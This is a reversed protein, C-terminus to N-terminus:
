KKSFTHYSENATNCDLESFMAKMGKVTSFFCGEKEDNPRIEMKYLGAKTKGFRLYKGENGYVYIANNIVTNMVVTFKDAIKGLSLLNAVANTDYYYIDKNLSPSIGFHKRM